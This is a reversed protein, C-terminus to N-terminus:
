RDADPWTPGRTSTGRPPASPSASWRRTTTCPGSPAGAWAAPGTALSDAETLAALLELRPVSQVVDAVRRITTPDDLDRRMAVDALFLHHEVLWDGAQRALKPALQPGFYAALGLGLLIAVLQELPKDGGSQGEGGSEWNM